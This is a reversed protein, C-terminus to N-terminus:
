RRLGGPARVIHRSSIPNCSFVFLSAAEWEDAIHSVGKGAGENLVYRVFMLNM